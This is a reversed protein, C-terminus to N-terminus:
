TDLNNMRAAATALAHWLSDAYSRMGIFDLRTVSRRLVFVTMHDLGTHVATDPTLSHPDLNILKALLATMADEPAELELCVFGDSQETVATEPAQAKVEAAFDCESPSKREIMWQNPGVWFASHDKANSIKGIDPLDLGFPHPKTRGAGIYLSALSLDSKESLTVAGFRASRPDRDRLATLPTLDTM